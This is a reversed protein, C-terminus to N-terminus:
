SKDVIHITTITTPISINNGDDLMNSCVEVGPHIHPTFTHRSVGPVQFPTFAYIVLRDPM